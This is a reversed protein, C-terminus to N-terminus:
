SPWDHAPHRLYTRPAKEFWDEGVDVIVYNRWGGKPERVGVGLTGVQTLWPINM